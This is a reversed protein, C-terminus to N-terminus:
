LDLTCSNSVLDNSILPNSVEVHWHQFWRSCIAIEDLQINCSNLVSFNAACTAELPKPKFVHNIQQEHCLIVDSALTTVVFCNEINSFAIPLPRVLTLLLLHYTNLINEFLITAPQQTEFRDQSIKMFPPVNPQSADCSLVLQRNLLLLTLRTVFRDVAALWSTSLEHSTPVRSDPRLANLSLLIAIYLVNPPKKDATLTDSLSLLPSHQMSDRVQERSTVSLVWFACNSYVIIGPVDLRHLISLWLALHPESLRREAYLLDLLLTVFSCYWNNTNAALCQHLNRLRFTSLPVTLERSLFPFQLDVSTSKKANTELPQFPVGVLSCPSVIIAKHDCPLGRLYFSLLMFRPHHLTLAPLQKNLLNFKEADNSPTSFCRSSLHVIRSREPYILFGASKYQTACFTITFLYVCSFFCVVLEKDYLPRLTDLSTTSHHLLQHLIRPVQVNFNQFNTWCATVSHQLLFPDCRSTGCDNENSSDASCIFNNPLDVPLVGMLTLYVADQKVTPALTTTSKQLPSISTKNYSLLGWSVISSLMSCRLIKGCGNYCALPMNSIWFGLLASPPELPQSAAKQHCYNNLSSIQVFGLFHNECDMLLSENPLKASPNQTSRDPTRFVFTFSRLVCFCAAM